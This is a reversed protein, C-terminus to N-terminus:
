NPYNPACESTSTITKPNQMNHPVNTGLKIRYSGNAPKSRKKTNLDGVILLIMTLSLFIRFWTMIRM